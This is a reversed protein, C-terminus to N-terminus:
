SSDGPKRGSVDLAICGLLNPKGPRKVSFNRVQFVRSQGDKDQLTREMAINECEFPFLDSAAKGLLSKNGFFDKWYRNAYLVFGQDDQVVVGAPANDLLEEVIGMPDLPAQESRGRVLQELHERYIRNEDKLKKLRAASNVVNCLTERTVPKVLYDFAGARVAETATDIKPEGTIMIVQIDPFASRIEQLLDVGSVKPLIIDCIVVDYNGEHLIRVASRADEASRVEHGEKELLQSRTDRMGREDDVVLIRAM